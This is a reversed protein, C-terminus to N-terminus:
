LKFNELHVNLFVYIESNDADNRWDETDCSGESIMRIYQNAASSVNRIIILTLFLREAEYKQPFLSIKQKTKLMRIFLFNSFVTSVSINQLM